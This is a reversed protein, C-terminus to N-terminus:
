ERPYIYKKIQKQNQKKLKFLLYPLLFLEMIIGCKRRLQGTSMSLGSKSKALLHNWNLLDESSQHSKRPSIVQGENFQLLQRYSKKLLYLTKEM